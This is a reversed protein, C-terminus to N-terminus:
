FTDPYPSLAFRLLIPSAYGHLLTSRAVHPFVPCSLCHEPSRITQKWKLTPRRSRRIGSPDALRSLPRSSDELSRFIMAQGPQKDGSRQCRAIWKVLVPNLIDQHSRTSGLCSDDQVERPSKQRILLAVPPSKVPHLM